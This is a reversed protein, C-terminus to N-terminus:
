WKSGAEEKGLMFTKGTVRKVWGNKIKLDVLM